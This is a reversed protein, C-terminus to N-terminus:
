EGRPLVIRMEAGGQTGQGAEIHGRHAEIIRKAIPMGLGTGRSKTTFFPEFIRRKTEATLGPGNDEVRIELAESGSLLATKARVTIRVPDKTAALANEFLNRFVQELRYSDVSINLDTGETEEQLLADRGKRSLALNDWAQRWVTALNWRFCDLKIPAAYGRVEELLQRLHDLAKQVRQVLDLAEPKDEVEWTLMELCSQSRALANGSEHALGTMMQGIAALRASQVTQEQATRLGTIDLAVILVAPGEGEIPLKELNWLLWRPSDDACRIATELGRTPTGALVADLAAAFPALDDGQLIDFLPRGRVARAEYGTVQEAHNSFYVVRRHTDLLIIVCPAAEVLTRFVRQSRDKEEALRRDAAVRELSRQRNLYETQYADEIIALDLDLLTNLSRRAELFTRIDATWRSELALLLGRRVRSLAANTFVQDLGIQVHRWGVRWRRLVYARDYSGSLLEVLWALLTGKLRGVQAEGGTIVARTLAHRKIEDYFDDILPQLAPELLPRLAAVREADKAEWGVYAQLEQYRRFVEDGDPNFQPIEGGM